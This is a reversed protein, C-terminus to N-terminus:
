AELIEDCNKRFRFCSSPREFDEVEGGTLVEPPKFVMWTGRGNCTREVLQGAMGKGLNNMGVLEHSACDGYCIFLFSRLWWLAQRSVSIFAASGSELELRAM